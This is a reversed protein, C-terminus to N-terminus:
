QYSAVLIANTRAVFSEKTESTGFKFLLVINTFLSTEWTLKTEAWHRFCKIDCMSVHSNVTFGRHLPSDLGESLPPPPPPPATMCVRFYLPRPPTLFVKKQDKPGWNPRFILPLRPGRAGGRSGGGHRLSQYAFSNWGILPAYSNRRHCAGGISLFWVPEMSPSIQFGGASIIGLM